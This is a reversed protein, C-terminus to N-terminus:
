SAPLFTRFPCRKRYRKSQNPRIGQKQLESRVVSYEGNKGTFASILEQAAKLISDHEKDSSKPEPPRSKTLFVKGAKLIENRKAKEKLWPFQRYLSEDSVRMSLYYDVQEDSLEEIIQLALTTKGTGARGKILLSHGGPSRLFDLIEGPTKGTEYESLDFAPYSIRIECKIRKDRDEFVSTMSPRGVM